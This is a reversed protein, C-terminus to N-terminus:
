QVHANIQKFEYGRYFLIKSFYIEGPNNEFKYISSSMLSSLDIRPFHKILLNFRQALVSM